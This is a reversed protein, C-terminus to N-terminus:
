GPLGRWGVGYPECAVGDGDWDMSARYSPNGRRISHRNDAHVASCNAYGQDTTRTEVFAAISTKGPATPTVAWLTACFAGAAVGAILFGFSSRPKPRARSRRPLRHVKSRM